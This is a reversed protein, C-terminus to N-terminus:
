RQKRLLKGFAQFLVQLPNTPTPLKEVFEGEVFWELADTIGVAEFAEQAKEDAEDSTPAEVVVRESPNSSRVVFISWKKLSNSM